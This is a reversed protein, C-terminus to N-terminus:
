CHVFDLQPLPLIQAILLAGLLGGSVFIVGRPLTDLHLLVIVVFALFGAIRIVLSDSILMVVLSALTGVGGLVPNALLGKLGKGTQGGYNM